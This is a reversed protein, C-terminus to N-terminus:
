CFFCLRATVNVYVHICLIFILSHSNAFATLWRLLYTEMRVVAYLLIRLTVHEITIFAM